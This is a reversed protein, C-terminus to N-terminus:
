GEKHRPGLNPVLLLVLDGPLLSSPPPLNSPRPGRTLKPDRLFLVWLCGDGKGLRLSPPSRRTDDGRVDQSTPVTLVGTRLHPFQPVLLLESKGLNRCRSPIGLGTELAVPFPLLCPSCAKM